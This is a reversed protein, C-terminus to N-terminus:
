EGIAQKLIVGRVPSAQGIGPRSSPRHPPWWLGAPAARGNPTVQDTRLQPVPGRGRRPATPGGAALWRERFGDYDSTEGTTYRFDFEALIVSLEEVLTPDLTLLLDYRPYTPLRLAAKNMELEALTAGELEDGSAVM